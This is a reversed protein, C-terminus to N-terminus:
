TLPEAGGSDAAQKPLAPRRAAPDTGGSELLRSLREIREELDELLLSQPPRKPLESM